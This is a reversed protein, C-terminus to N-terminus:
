RTIGAPHPIHNSCGVSCRREEEKVELLFDVDKTFFFIHFLFHIFFDFLTLPFWLGEVAVVVQPLRQQRMRQPRAPATGRRWQPASSELAPRSM